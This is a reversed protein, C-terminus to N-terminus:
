KMINNGSNTVLLKELEDITKLFHYKIISKNDMINKTINNMDSITDTFEYFIVNIHDQMDSFSVLAHYNLYMYKLWKDNAYLHVDINKVYMNNSVHTYENWKGPISHINNHRDHCYCSYYFPYHFSKKYDKIKNIINTTLLIKEDEDNSNFKFIKVNSTFQEYVDDCSSSSTYKYVHFYFNGEFESVVFM